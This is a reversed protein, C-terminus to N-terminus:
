QWEALHEGTFVMVNYFSKAWYDDFGNGGAAGTVRKTLLITKNKMNVFTVWMSAEGKDKNMGEVFFILGIGKKHHFDYNTVLVSVKKETLLQYDRSAGRFRRNDKDSFHYKISNYSARNTVETGMAGGHTAVWAAKQFDEQESIVGFMNSWKQFYYFLVQTSVDGTDTAKTSSNIYKLQSCDLGLWTIPTGDFIDDRTQASLRSATLAIILILIFPKM